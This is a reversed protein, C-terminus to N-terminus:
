GARRYARWGGYSTIDTLAAQEHEGHRLIMGFSLEGSELEVISLELEPPERALLKHLQIMPVEYLEGLVPQGGDGVPHLAPFEDRVSYFRYRPLTRREGILTAGAIHQHLRGGRM